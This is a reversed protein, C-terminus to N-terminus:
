KAYLIMQTCRFLAITKGSERRTVSTDWVQTTKRLHVPKASALITGEKATGL